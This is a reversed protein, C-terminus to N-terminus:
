APPLAALGPFPTGRRYIFCPILILALGAWAAMARGRRGGTSLPLLAVLSGLMLEWARSPLLYFAAVPRSAVGYVSGAFSVALSVGLITLLPGRRQLAKFRFFTALLLPVFMYFQEEVALSWTHLLPAEEAAPAFYGTSRWFYVNAAFAAQWTATTGLREFEDPFLIFWGAALTGLVMVAAAPIIRRARREWFRRFTFEGSELDKVILSTILYGSIVFFVDVGVFGGPVGSTAHYFVVALVALARLGDLEPRYRFDVILPM